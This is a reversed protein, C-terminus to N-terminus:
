TDHHLSCQKTRSRAELLEIRAVLSSANDFGLQIVNTLMVELDKIGAKFKNYDDHWRHGNVDLISYDLSQLGKILKQFSAQLCSVFHREGWLFMIICSSVVSFRRSSYLLWALVQLGKLISNPNGLRCQM